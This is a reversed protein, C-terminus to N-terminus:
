AAILQKALAVEVSDGDSNLVDLGTDPMDGSTSQSVAIKKAMLTLCAIQATNQYGLYHVKVPQKQGIRWSRRAAQQVTYVNYGSQMFCITPFDLLDLGTKVLEPNCVLVDIGRDVQDMIWDERRDTSVSSRLVATKFGASELIKMLRTATDRKGTYVTYVLVRRNQAKEQQCLEILAAEKPNPEDGLVPPMMLLLQQTRPHRVEELRFCTDPWSLLVTLVLGLLTKDGRALAKRMENTLVGSLNDYAERQEPSMAIEDFSEHYDPLVNGGIDKLKLFATYPLVYRLVGKPGFGPAKSTHVTMKKGKATRHNGDNTEKYVDKLVGHQRMFSMAAPGLNNRGNYRFGDELMRAPMIRWLLYFLDDAYGGMLTGTLLVTKRAKEALVGMAQGQASGSNKYEHGEDVLLLDFFGDPLYRKIFESPQYGGQGFGIEQKALSREMRRAQRDSFVLDGNEDMLNIFEFVNDSLMASLTDTGFHQLLKHATKPGITPIQCLADHVIERFDKPPNNRKLTWLPSGCHLCAHRSDDGRKFRAASIREGEDDVVFSGCAPCAAFEFSATYTRGPQTETEPVVVREHVRRVMAAPRWDFGMRMRVRGIVYFEPAAPSNSRNARITLLQRVTDPGNLVWVKADPVTELIERRWKYVLHPPSIVLTRRYGEAHLVAAAAIGMMTKGCGMEGNLVAAPEGQEVLLQCVAQVRDRQADFPRRQLSDMIEDWHPNPRGPDYVPPLRKSVSAMLGNGFETLFDNLPIANPEQERNSEQEINSEQADVDVSDIVAPELTVASEPNTDIM